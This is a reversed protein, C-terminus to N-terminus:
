LKFSASTLLCSDTEVDNQLTETTPSLSFGDVHVDLILTKKKHYLIQMHIRNKDHKGNFTKWLLLFSLM